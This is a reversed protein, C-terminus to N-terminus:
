LIGASLGSALLVAGVLIFFSLFVGIVALIVLCSNLMRHSIENM